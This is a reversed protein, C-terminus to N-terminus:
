PIIEFIKSRAHGGKKLRLKKEPIGFHEALLAVTEENAEGREAKSEVNVIFRDAELMEVSSKRSNPKVKVKIFM